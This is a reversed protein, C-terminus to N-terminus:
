LGYKLKEIEWKQPTFTKLGLAHVSGAFAEKLPKMVMQHQKVLMMGEFVPSVVVAQLHQGDNMPDFIYASSGPISGEIVNKIEELTM